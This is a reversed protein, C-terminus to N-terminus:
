ETHCKVKLYLSCTSCPIIMENIETSHFMGYEGGCRCPYCYEGNDHYGFDNYVPHMDKLNVTEYIVFSERTQQMKLQKDYEERLAANSLVEWATQIHIFKNHTADKDVDPSTLIKDPHYQRAAAHFATKIENYSATSPIGLTEYHSSSSPDM